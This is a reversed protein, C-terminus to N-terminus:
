LKLADVTAYGSLYVEEGGIIVGNYQLKGTDSESLLELVEKNSHEHSKGVSEEIQEGSVSLKKNAGDITAM